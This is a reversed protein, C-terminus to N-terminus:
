KGWGMFLCLVTIFFIFGCAALFLQMTAKLKEWIGM